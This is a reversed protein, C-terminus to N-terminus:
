AQGWVVAAVVAGAAYAVVDWVDGTARDFLHPGVVEAAVSWVGWTFLIERWDPFGDNARLGLKRQLWLLLPLGAPILLLDNFHHRLFAGKYVTPMAWRNLAYCASAVGCLPDRWYRFTTM